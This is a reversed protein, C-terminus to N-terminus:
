IRGHAGLFPKAQAATDGTISGIILRWFDCLIFVIMASGLAELASRSLSWKQGDNTEDIRTFMPFSVVFYLMYFTSGILYMQERNEIHYYPVKELTWAEMFATFYSMAAIIVISGVIKGLPQRKGPATPAYSSWFRRLIPTTAAHYTMFYAHTIFYLMVPVENLRFDVPFRYTARLLVFFYHTWFYNGVFGFLAIWINAKVWYREYWPKDRDAACPFLMPVIVCPLSVILGLIFFELDAWKKYEETIVALSFVGIWFPSYLLYFKEAWAKSPVKSFWHPSAISSQKSTATM